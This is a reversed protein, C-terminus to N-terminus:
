MEVVLDPVDSLRGSGNPRRSSASLLMGSSDYVVPIGFDRAIQTIPAEGKRAVAVM